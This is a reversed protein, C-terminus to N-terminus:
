SFNVQHGHQTLFTDIAYNSSDIEIEFPQQLELLTLLTTSCLCQKLDEFSKQQSAGLFFKAKSGGRIVKILPWIIHSVGLIFGHYFNTLVLFSDLEIITTPTPWNPIGQINAPDMPVVNEDM